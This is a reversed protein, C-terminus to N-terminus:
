TFFQGIKTNCKVKSDASYGNATTQTNNPFAQSSWSGSDSIKLKNFALGARTYLLVQQAKVYYGPKIDLDFESTSLSVVTNTSSSVQIGQSSTSGNDNTNKSINKANSQNFNLKSLFTGGLEGALSLRESVFEKGLIIRGSFSSQHTSGAPKVSSFISQTDDLDNVGILANNGTWSAHALDGGLLGEFYVNNKLLLENSTFLNGMLGANAHLPLITAFITIKLKSNM